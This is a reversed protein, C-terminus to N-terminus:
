RSWEEAEGEFRVTLTKPADAQRERQLAGLEKLLGSLERLRRLDPTERALETGLMADLRATLEKLQEM